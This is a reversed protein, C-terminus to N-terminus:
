SWYQQCTEALENEEYRLLYQLTEILQTDPSNRSLSTLGHKPNLRISHYETTCLLVAYHLSYLANHAKLAKSGTNEKLHIKM